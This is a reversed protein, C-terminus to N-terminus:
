KGVLFVENRCRLRVIIYCLYDFVLASTTIVVVIIVNILPSFYFICSNGIYTKLISRDKPSRPNLRAQDHPVERSIIKSVGPYQM